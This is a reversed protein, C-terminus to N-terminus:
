LYGAVREGVLDQAEHGEADEAAAMGFFEAFSVIRAPADIQAEGEEVAHLM